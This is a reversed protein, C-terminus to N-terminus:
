EAEMEWGDRGMENENQRWRGDMEVWRMQMRGGDRMWRARGIENANQRWRGDMEVWRMKM